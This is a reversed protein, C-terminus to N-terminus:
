AIGAVGRRHYRTRAKAGAIAHNIYDGVVEAKFVPVRVKRGRHVLGFIYHSNQNDLTFHIRLFIHNWRYCMKGDRM